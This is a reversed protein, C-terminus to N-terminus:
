LTDIQEIDEPTLITGGIYRTGDSTNFYYVVLVRGDPLLASWPYGIDANGGDERLVIEPATAFDRCEQELVKARVGYPEHRYGYVLLVREDPLRLAHFPHGQFGINQWPEFSQGGDTSRAVAGHDNNGFTRIFAVLDGGPTEYLSTENFKVKGSKDEVVNCRHEWSEGNDASVMLHISTKNPTISERATVGWYLKGNGSECMAGRNFAPCPEGYLGTLRSGPVPPPFILDRWTSGGDFSRLIYGGMLIFDRYRSRTPDGIAYDPPVRCWGYSTCILLGNRLKHLCPDQSGGFPHAYISEPKESWTSGGDTSRVLVLHSNPDAHSVDKAGLLRRDPARRFAVILEGDPRCVVSPFASYFKEDIYITINKSLKLKRYLM